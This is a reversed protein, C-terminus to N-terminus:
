MQETTQFEVRDSFAYQQNILAYLNDGSEVPKPEWDEVPVLLALNSIINARQEDSLDIPDIILTPKFQYALNTSDAALSVSIFPTQFVLFVLAFRLAFNISKM